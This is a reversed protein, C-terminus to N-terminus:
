EGENLQVWANAGTVKPLVGNWATAKEYEILSTTLSEALKKNAEAQADAVAKIAQADAEAAIRKQDAEAQAAIRKQEAEAEARSTAARNEIERQEYQMQTVQKAAIAANYSDEFDMNDINVSVISIVQLNGYKANIANQLANQAAPEIKSRNTVHRTALSVMANKMASAVLSPPLANQKYDTVNAFVWSSYEPNIRYTVVVGEMFVVTQDASEGWIRDKFVIEQQKNNVKYVRQSYPVKLVIGHPLIEDDIQGFITRVGTYGSPIVAFCDIVTIAAVLAFLIPLVISITKKRM